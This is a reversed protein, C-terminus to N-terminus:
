ELYRSNSFTTLQLFKTRKKLVHSNGLEVNGGSVDRFKQGDNIVPYKAHALHESWVIETVLDVTRQQRDYQSTDFTLEQDEHVNVNEHVSSLNRRRVSTASLARSVFRPVDCM